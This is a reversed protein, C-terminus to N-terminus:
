RGMRGGGGGIGVTGGVRVAGGGSTGGVHGMGGGGTGGRITGGHFGGNGHFNGGGQGGFHGHFGGHHHIPFRYSPITYYIFPQYVGSYGYYPYNYDYNYPQYDPPTAYKLREIAQDIQAELQRARENAAVEPAPPEADPPPAVPQRLMDSQVVVPQPLTRKVQNAIVDELGFLDRQTGTAKLGAISEKKVVDVVHGTIRLDGEVTQYSGFVVFDAHAGEGLRVAVSLETVPTDGSVPTVSSLRSLEALLNQQVAKAIWPKPSDGVSEFPLTLVRAPAAAYATTGMLLVIAAFLRNM